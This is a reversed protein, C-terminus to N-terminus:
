SQHVTVTKTLKNEIDKIRSTNKQALAQASSATSTVQKLQAINAVDNNNVGEAVGTIIRDGQAGSVSITNGEVNQGVSIINTEPDHSFMLDFRSADYPASVEVRNRHQALTTPAAAADDNHMSVNPAHTTERANLEELGQELAETPHSAPQETSSGAVAATTM